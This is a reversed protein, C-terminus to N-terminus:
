LAGRELVTRAKWRVYANDDSQLEGMHDRLATDDEGTFDKMLIELANIAAIRLGPNADYLLVYLLADRSERDPPQQRVAELAAMRVGVNDDTMM